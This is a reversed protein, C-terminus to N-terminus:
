RGFMQWLGQDGAYDMFPKDNVQGLAATQYQDGLDRIRALIAAQVIDPAAAQLSNRMLSGFQQVQDSPLLEPNAIYNRLVSNEDNAGMFASAIDGLGISQGGPTFQQGLYQGTWDMFNPYGQAAAQNQMLLWLGRLRDAQQLAAGYGGGTTPLNNLNFFLRILTDPNDWAEEYMGPMIANGFATTTEGTGTAFGPLPAGGEYSSGPIFPAAAGQAGGTVTSQFGGTNTPAITRAGSFRAIDTTSPPEGRGATQTSPRTTTRPYKPLITPLTRPKTGGLEGPLAM